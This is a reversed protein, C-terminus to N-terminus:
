LMGRQRPANMWYASLAKTHELLAFGQAQMRV